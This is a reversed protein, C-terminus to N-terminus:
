FYESPTLLDSHKFVSCLPIKVLAYIGPFRAPRWQSARPDSGNRFREKGAIVASGALVESITHLHAAPLSRWEYASLMAAPCTECFFVERSGSGRSFDLLGLKVWEFTRLLTMAKGLSTFFVWCPKCGPVSCSVRTCYRRERFSNWLFFCYMLSKPWLDIVLGAIIESFVFSIVM